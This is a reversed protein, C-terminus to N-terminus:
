RKVPPTCPWRMLLRPVAQCRTHSSMERERRGYGSSISEGAFMRGNRKDRVMCQVHDPVDVVYKRTLENAAVAVLQSQPRGQNEPSVM